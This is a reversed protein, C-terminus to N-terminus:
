VENEQYYEDIAQHLKEQKDPNTALLYAMFGLNNGTTEYGAFLLEICQGVIEDDHLIKEGNPLNKDEEDYAEIM